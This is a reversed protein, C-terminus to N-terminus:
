GEANTPLTRPDRYVGLDTAAESQVPFPMTNAYFQCVDGTTAKIVESRESHSHQPHFTLPALETSVGKKGVTTNVHICMHVHVQSGCMSVLHREGDRGVKAKSVPDSVSGPYHAAPITDRGRWCQSALM